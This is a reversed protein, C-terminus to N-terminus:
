HMRNADITWIFEKQRYGFHARCKVLFSQERVIFEDCMPPEQYVEMIEYHKALLRVEKRVGDPLTMIRKLIKSNVSEPLELM